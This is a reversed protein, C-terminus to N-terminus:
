SHLLNSILEIVSKPADAGKVFDFVSCNDDYNGLIERKLRSKQGCKEMLKLYRLIENWPRVRRKRFSVGPVSTCVELIMLRLVNDYQGGYASDSLRVGADRTVVAIGLDPVYDMVSGHLRYPGNPLNIQHLEVSNENSDGNISRCAQGYDYCKGSAMMVKVGDFLCPTYRLSYTVTITRIFDREGVDVWNGDYTSLPIYEFSYFECPNHFKIRVGDRYGDSYELLLEYVRDHENSSTSSPFLAVENMSCRTGIGFRILRAGYEYESTDADFFKAKDVNKSGLSSLRFPTQRPTARTEIATNHSGGTNQKSDDKDIDVVKNTLSFVPRNASRASRVSFADDSPPPFFSGIAEFGLSKKGVKPTRVRVRSGLDRSKAVLRLEEQEDISDDVLIAYPETIVDKSVSGEDFTTVRETQVNQAESSELEGTLVRHLGPTKTPINDKGVVGEDPVYPASPLKRIEGAEVVPLGPGHKLESGTQVFTSSRPVDDNKLAVTRYTEKPSSRRLVSSHREDLVPLEKSSSCGM